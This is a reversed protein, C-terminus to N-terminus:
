QTLRARAEELRTKEKAIVEKPAKALFDPNNLRAELSQIYKELQATDKAPELKTIKELYIKAHSLNIQDFTKLEDSKTLIKIKAMKEILGRNEDILNELRSDILCNIIEAPALKQEARANRIATIIEQIKVFNQAQARTIKFDIKEVWPEIMLLNNKIAGQEINMIGWIEETVFPVFPHLMVLCKKLIYDLLEQQHPVAEVKAAEIYWDALKHWIFDYIDEGARSFHYHELNHNVNKILKELEYLIWQDSHQLNKIKLQPKENKTKSKENEIIYRAINWIKNIFNRYAAIKEEYLRVDNGPTTGIILSLRVADAGYKKIMKVPDIGNGLSKSMKRGEKDRVLGHLYVTKFPVEGLAYTTMLIMRAVWFFLIDYGTEMVSTPHFRELDNLIGNNKNKIKLNKTESPWGLTSFTWLGSSFWTDLTDPDQKLKTGGCKPCKSVPTRSVIIEQCNSKQCYYVPIPHGFWIQRSICWDRLNEMWQFYIKNFRKPIINIEGAKVVGLALKKLSATKKGITKKLKENKIKIKKNVDVFWQRSTLPEIPTACRYCISLNHQCQDESILLKKAKLEAVIKKRAEIVKLESFEGLGKIIRGNEDIVKIVPLEHKEALAFDALSHAPTVGLAGTGFKIDVANDAIVKLTLAQGLFDVNFIQGIFKKYRLDKPNVAIATDGLKTEPRTTSIKIPCNKDYAFTYLKATEEKYEVEDDALTSMCRPCWNVIRNGRYILGDQYMRVFVEKVATSLGPDLTYRERSWDCSSGIKRVQGRIVHQSNSVFDNVSELFKTRGIAQRTQGTKALLIKEVKNQTAIAAHDTGPLWLVAKGKMRQWRVMIDQIALMVAHGLHLEGTANPPPMAISFNKNTSKNPRFFGSKEWTQYIKDEIEQPNYIKPLSMNAM